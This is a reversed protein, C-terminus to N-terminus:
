YAEVLDLPHKFTGNNIKEVLDPRDRFFESLRKKKLGFIGQTARILESKGERKLYPIFDIFNNDPDSFEQHYLSLPGEAVVKYFGPQGGEEVVRIYTRLFQSVSITQLVVFRDVGRKYSLLNAPQYRRRGWKGHPKFRIRNYLSGFAGTSRDRVKGYLTDGSLKVVYGEQWDPQRQGMLPSNGLFFLFLCTFLHLTFTKM